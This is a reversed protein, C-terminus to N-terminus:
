SPHLHGLPLFYAQPLAIAFIHSAHQFVALAYVALAYPKFVLFKGAAAM